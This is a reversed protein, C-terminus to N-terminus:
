HKSQTDKYGIHLYLCQLEQKRAKEQPLIFNHAAKCSNHLEYKSFRLFVFYAFPLKWKVCFVKKLKYIINQNYSFFTQSM